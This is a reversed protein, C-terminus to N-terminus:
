WYAPFPLARPLRAHDIAPGEGYPSSPLVVGAQFLDLVLGVFDTLSAALPEPPDGPLECHGDVLFLAGGGTTDACLDAPVSMDLVPWWGSPLDGEWTHQLRDYTAAAEALSPLHWDALLLNDALPVFAGGYRSAVDTGDHWGWWAHLEESAILGRQGLVDDVHRPDAGPRWHDVIPAGLDTLHQELRSLMQSLSEVM